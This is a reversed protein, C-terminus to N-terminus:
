RQKKELLQELDLKTKQDIPADKLEPKKHSVFDDLATDTIKNETSINDKLVKLVEIKGM